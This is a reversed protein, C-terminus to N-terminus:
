RKKLGGVGGECGSWLEVITVEPLEKFMDHEGQGGPNQFSKVM